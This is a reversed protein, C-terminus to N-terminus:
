GAQVSSLLSFLLRPSAILEVSIYYGGCRDTVLPMNTATSHSALQCALTVKTVLVICALVSSWCSIAKQLQDKAPDRVM